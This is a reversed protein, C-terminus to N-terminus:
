VRAVETHVSFSILVMNYFYSFKKFTICTDLSFLSSCHTHRVGPAVSPPTKAKQKHTNEFTEVKFWSYVNSQSKNKLLVFKLIKLHVFVQHSSGKSPSHYALPTLSAPAAHGCGRELRRLPHVFSRAQVSLAHKGLGSFWARSPVLRWPGGRHPDEAWFGM